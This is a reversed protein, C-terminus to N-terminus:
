LANWADARRRLNTYTKVLREVDAYHEVTIFVEDLASRSALQFALDLDADDPVGHTDVALGGSHRVHLERPLSERAAFGPRSIHIHALRQLPLAELYDQMVIGLNHASVEAHALDVLLLLNGSEILRGAIEPQCVSDYAATPYYALLEVALRGGYWERLRRIREAVMQEMEPLSLIPSDPLYYEGWPQRQMKVQRCAPGLDFSFDEISHEAFFDRLKLRELEPFFRDSFIGESWHFIERFGHLGDTEPRKRELLDCLGRLPDAPGPFVTSCPVAVRIKV